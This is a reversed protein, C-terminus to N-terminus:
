KLEAELEACKAAGIRMLGGSIALTGVDYKALLAKRQAAPLSDLKRRIRNVDDSDLSVDPGPSADSSSNSPDDTNPESADSPAEADGEVHPASPEAQEPTTGPATIARGIFNMGRRFGAPSWDVKADLMPVVSAVGMIESVLEVRVRYREVHVGTKFIDCTRKITEAM